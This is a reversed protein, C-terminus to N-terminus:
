SPFYSIRKPAQAKHMTNKISLRMRLSALIKLQQLVDAANSM